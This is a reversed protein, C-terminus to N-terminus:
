VGRPNVVHIPSGAVYALIQDFIESFQLQYEEHTVYGIHPTCVANEMALLPHRACAVPEEEYVDVAAMGPCGALLARELAGPEIAVDIVFQKALVGSAFAWSCARDHSIALGDFVAALTTGDGMIGVAPDITGAYGVAKECVWQWTAGGDTTQIMGYTTRAFLHRADGPDVVLQSAVPFRGNARADRSTLSSALAAAVFLLAAPALTAHPARSM